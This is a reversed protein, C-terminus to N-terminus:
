DSAPRAVDDFLSVHQQVVSQWSFLEEVRARGRGALRRRYSADDILKQLTRTLEAPSEPPVLEATDGVVDACGTGQTTIVAAGATMAELLVVPFNESSSILAFIAAQEYLERLEPGKNELFGLVEINDCGNALNRITDLYPGDGVLSLRWDDRGLRKFAEILYQVGKREFMRTVCLIRQQKELGPSFMDLEIGNPIVLTRARPNAKLILRQIFSSPCVIRDIKCTLRRWVPGLVRHMLKFRNPNYGPVDSGHSTTVFPLGTLVKVFASILSDPLIFHTHNIAYDNSRALRWAVLTGLLIYPLMEHTHCMSQKRRIGPVRFIRLRGRVERRPLGRFSMTVLDIEYGQDVLRSILGHAVKAGGGGLPPYEYSVVLM